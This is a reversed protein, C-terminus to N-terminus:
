VVIMESVFPFFIFNGMPLLQRQQPKVFNSNRFCGVNDMYLMQTQTLITVFGLQSMGIVCGDNMPGELVRHLTGDGRLDLGCPMAVGLVMFNCDLVHVGSLGLMNDNVLMPSAWMYIRPSGSFQHTQLSLDCHWEWLRERSTKNYYSRMVCQEIHPQMFWNWWNRKGGTLEYLDCGVLGFMMEPVMIRFPISDDNELLTTAASKGMGYVAWQCVAAFLRQHNLTFGSCATAVMQIVSRYSEVRDGLLDTRDRPLRRLPKSDANHAVANITIISILAMFDMAAHMAVVMMRWSMLGDRVAVAAQLAGNLRLLVEIFLSPPWQVRNILILHGDHNLLAEDGVYDMNNLAPASDVHGQNALSRIDREINTSQVTGTAIINSGVDYQCYDPMLQDGHCRASIDIYGFQRQFEVCFRQFMAPYNGHSVWLKENYSFGRGSSIVREFTVWSRYNEGNDVSGSRWKLFSHYAWLGLTYYEARRYAQMVASIERLKKNAGMLQPRKNCPPLEVGFM